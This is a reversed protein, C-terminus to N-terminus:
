RGLLNRRRRLSEAREVFIDPREDMIAERISPHSHGGALRRVLQLRNEHGAAKTARKGHEVRAADLSGTRKPTVQDVRCRRELDTLVTREAGLQLNYQDTERAPSANGGGGLLEYGSLRFTPASAKACPRRTWLSRLLLEGAVSAGPGLIGVLM